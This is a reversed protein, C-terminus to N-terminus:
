NFTIDQIEKFTLPYIISNFTPLTSHTGSSSVKKRLWHFNQWCCLLDAYKLITSDETKNYIFLLLINTGHSTEELRGITHVSDFICFQTLANFAM